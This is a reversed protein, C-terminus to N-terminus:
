VKDILMLGLLLPLYIISAVVHFRASARTKNSVFVVGCGLFAVGFVMAGIVYSSGAVGYMAPLMSAAILAFTHTIVQVTTRRGDHDVVSLMPFGAASYDDRYQWAISAFHPLQWFFVIAFLLCPAISLSDAGGAWGIVPPLAGPVAGVLVCMPSVRKLPTYLLVYTILTLAAITAALPNVVLALYAVGTVGSLTGFTLVEVGTLRGSPLPRDRTREMKADHDAEILQNLANAGAAVLGTGLLTHFLAVMAGPGADAPLALCYGVATAALVLSSVRLKALEVFSMIRSRALVIAAPKIELTDSM